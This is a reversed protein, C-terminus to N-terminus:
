FLRSGDPLQLNLEPNAADFRRETRGLRAAATRLLEVLEDDSDAVREGRDRTGDSYKVWVVDHGQVHLDTIRPDDLYRQLRGLGFLRAYAERAVDEESHPDLPELGERLRRRAEAELGAAILKRAYAGEDAPILLTSGDSGDDSRRRSLEDAVQAAIRRSLPTVEANM